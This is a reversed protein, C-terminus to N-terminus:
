GIGYYFYLEKEAQSALAETFVGKLPSTKNTEGRGEKKCLNLFYRIHEGRDDPYKSETYEWNRSLRNQIENSLSMFAGIKPLGLPHTNEVKDKQFDLKSQESKLNASLSVLKVIKKYAADTRKMYNDLIYIFADYDQRKAELEIAKDIKEKQSKLGDKGIIQYIKSKFTEPTYVGNDNEFNADLLNKYAKTNKIGKFSDYIYMFARPSQVADELNVAQSVANIINTQKAPKPEIKSINSIIKSGIESTFIKTQNEQKPLPLEANVIITGFLQKHINLYTVKYYEREGNILSSTFTKPLSAFGRTAGYIGYALKYNSFGCQVLYESLRDINDGKQCFAAFSTVVDSDTSFLDFSTNEQFHSLLSNVYTSVDSTEWKDGMIRKLIGGGNFALALPEEIGNEEM